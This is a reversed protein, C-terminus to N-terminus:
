AGFDTSRTSGQLSIHACEVICPWIRGFRVDSIQTRKVGRPLAPALKIGEVRGMPNAAMLEQQYAWTFFSTLAAQKRARSAPQLHTFTALFTRLREATVTTLANGHWRAFQQLDTTYISLAITLPSMIEVANTSDVMSWTTLLRAPCLLACMTAELEYM